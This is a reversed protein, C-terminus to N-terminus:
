QGFYIDIDVNKVKATNDPVVIPGGWFPEGRIGKINSLGIPENHELVVVALFRYIDPPVSIEYNVSDLGVPLSGSIYLDLLTPFKTFSFPVLSAVVFLSEAEKPWQGHFYLTGSISSEFHSRARKFNAVINIGSVLVDEPVNVQGPTLSDSGAFYVGIINNVNWQYGKEKWIVAIARYLGPPLYLTYECSDVGFPLPEGIELQSIGQPPFDTSAVVLVQDTNEPWKGKFSITGRIGNRLPALGQDIECSFLILLAGVVTVARVTQIKM